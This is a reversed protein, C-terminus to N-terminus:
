ELGRLIDEFAQKQAKKVKTRARTKAKIIFGRKKVKGHKKRHPTGYNLFVAKYGDSLNHPDYTGKKYGVRATVSDHRNEVQAPPMANILRESVGSERMQAKLAEQVIDASDKMCKYVAGDVSGGAKEIAKIYEDFGDLKMKISM